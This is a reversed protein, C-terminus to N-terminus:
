APVHVLMCQLASFFQCSLTNLVVKFWCTRLQEYNSSVTFKKKKFAYFYLQMLPWMISNEEQKRWPNWSKVKEKPHINFHAKSQFILSLVNSRLKICRLASAGDPNPQLKLTAWCGDPQCCNYSLNNERTMSTKRKREVVCFDFHKWIKTKLASPALWIETQWKTYKNSVCWLSKFFFSLRKCAM